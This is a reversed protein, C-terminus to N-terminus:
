FWQTKSRSHSQQNLKFVKRMRMIVAMDGPCHSFATAATFM